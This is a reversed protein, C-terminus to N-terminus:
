VTKLHSNHSAILIANLILVFKLDLNRQNKKKLNLSKPNEFFIKTVELDGREAAEKFLISRFREQIENEKTKQLFTRVMSLRQTKKPNWILVKSIVSPSVNEIVVDFHNYDAAMNIWASYDLDEINSASFAELLKSDGIRASELFLNKQQIKSM